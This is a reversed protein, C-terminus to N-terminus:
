AHNPAEICIVGNTGGFGASNNLVTDVDADTPETVVPMDCAPDPTECNITPPITGDRITQVAVVAEIAGSAGM